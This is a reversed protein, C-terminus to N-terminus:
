RGVLQRCRDAFFYRAADHVGKEKFQHGSPISPGDRDAIAASKGFRHVDRVNVRGAAQRGKALMEGNRDLIANLGSCGYLRNVDLIFLDDANASGPFINGRAGHDAGRRDMDQRFQQM